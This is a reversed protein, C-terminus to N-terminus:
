KKGLNWYIRANGTARGVAVIDVKGDGDLDDAALDEVAVGGNEIIQRAWKAGKDDQAKYIRVGRQETFTDGKAPNDRVGIILEDGGDGDLDAFWVGHGWRLQEDLVRRDWMPQSANSPPTYVVVQTGHWPEITAIVPGAKLKGQKIESAGRNSKPNAQNGVGIHRPTWKGDTQRELRTVGEYSAVLVDLGKGSVAPTPWFNHAVHLTQNLVVEEWRDRTPDKPIRHAIVRLPKGDTWNSDKTAGRGMLPVNILQPRGEGLVDAFQIRHVTPEEGIPYLKWQENLDKPQQVWQLTGGSKTNFPKWDAGIAFDVRGDGDIDHPAICVNDPNTQGQIILRQKWTPNEYWVVRNTDVVVIDKKKDGNVDVIRVAYGVKLGTEIEQTKFAVFDQAPALAASAILLLAVVNIRLIVIPGGQHIRSAEHFRAATGNLKRGDDKGTLTRM